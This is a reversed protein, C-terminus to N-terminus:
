MRFRLRWQGSISAIDDGNSGVLFLLLAGRQISGIAAGNDVWSTRKGKLGVRFTVRKCPHLNDLVLLVDKLMVFRSYQDVRRLSLISATLNGGVAVDELVEDLGALLKNPARDYVVLLRVLDCNVNSQQNRTVLASGIWSIMRIVDGSRTAHGTGRGVENLLTAATNFTPEADWIGDLFNVENDTLMTIRKSLVATTPGRRARRKLRKRRMRKHPMAFLTDYTPYYSIRDHRWLLLTSRKADSAVLTAASRAVVLASSWLPVYDQTTLLQLRNGLLRSCFQYHRQRQAWWSPTGEPPGEPPAM